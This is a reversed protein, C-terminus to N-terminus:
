ARPAEVSFKSASFDFSTELFNMSLRFTPAGISKIQRSRVSSNLRLAVAATGAHRFFVSETLSQNDSGAHSRHRARDGSVYTNATNSV